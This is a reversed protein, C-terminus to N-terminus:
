SRSLVFFGGEPPKKMEVQAFNQVRGHFSIVRKLDYDRMVKLLGIYAALTQADAELGTETQLFERNEIWAKMMPDDVGFIREDTKKEELEV